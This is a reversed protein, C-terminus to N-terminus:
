RHCTEVILEREVVVADVGIPVGTHSPLALSQIRYDVGLQTNIM